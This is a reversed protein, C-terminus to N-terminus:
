IKTIILLLATSERELERATERLKKSLKANCGSFFMRLKGCDYNYVNKDPVSPTSLSSPCHYRSIYVSFSINPNFHFLCFIPFTNNDIKLCNSNFYFVKTSNTSKFNQLKKFCNQKVEVKLFTM